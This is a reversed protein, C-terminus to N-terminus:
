AGPYRLVNVRYGQTLYLWADKARQAATYPSNGFKTEIGGLVNGSRDSVEGDIFRAGFPTSKFVEPDAMRNPIQDM